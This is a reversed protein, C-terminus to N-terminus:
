PCVHCPEEYTGAAVSWPHGPFGCRWPAARHESGGQLAWLRSISFSEKAVRQRLFWCAPQPTPTPCHSRRWAHPHSPTGGARPSSLRSPRPASCSLLARLLWTCLDQCLGGWVENLKQLPPTTQDQSLGQQPQSKSPMGPPPPLLWHCGPRLM